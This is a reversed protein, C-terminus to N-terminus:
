NRFPACQMLTSKGSSDSASSSSSSSYKAALLEEKCKEPIEEDSSSEEGSEGNKYNPKEEHSVKGFSPIASIFSKKCRKAFGYASTMKEYSAQM